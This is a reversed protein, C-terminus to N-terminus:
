TFEGCYSECNQGSVDNAPCYCREATCGDSPFSVVTSNAVAVSSGGGDLNIANIAGLERMRRAMDYLSAGRVWSKGNVQM